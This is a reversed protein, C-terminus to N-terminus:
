HMFVNEGRCIKGLDRLWAEVVNAASANFVVQRQMETCREICQAAVETGTPIDSQWNSTASEITEVMTPDTREPDREVDALHLIWQRYFSISFDGIMVLRARKKAAEKGVADVFGTILKPFDDKGPDLSALQSFLLRRFEYTEPDSLQTAREISGESSNALDSLPVGGPDM